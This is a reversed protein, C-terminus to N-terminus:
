QTPEATGEPETQDIPVPAEPFRHGVLGGADEIQETPRARLVRLFELRETDAALRVRWRRNPDQAIQGVLLDPPFVGGDGSTVVRDGARIEATQELFDLLPASTTDGLMLARHGSPEITVPIASNGDTVLIVRATSRGVGSIRGVLGLGDMAAWGEQLGDNAGINLLVSHRFPSGSDTLVVGSVFTLEPSLIVQNLDLLRANEQELQIAAERWARMAQLERRLEQNQEYVRAYGQFDEIMRAGATVPRMAWEMNPIVRDLLAARLREARPNDIRWLLLLALLLVLLLGLLLRRLPRQYLEPDNGRAM